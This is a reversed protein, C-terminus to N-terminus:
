VFVYVFLWTYWGILCGSAFVCLVLPTRYEDDFLALALLAVLAAVVPVGFFSWWM